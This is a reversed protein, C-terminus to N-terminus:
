AGYWLLRRDHESIDELASVLGGHYENEGLMEALCFVAYVPVDYELALCELYEQTDEPFDFGVVM